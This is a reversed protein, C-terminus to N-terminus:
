VRVMWGNMWSLSLFFMFSKHFQYSEKYIPGRLLLLLSHDLKVILLHIIYKLLSNNKQHKLISKFAHSTLIVSHM